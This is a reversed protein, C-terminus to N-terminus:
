AQPSDGSYKLARSTIAMPMAFPKGEMFNTLEREAAAGGEAVTEDNLLSRMKMHSYLVYAHKTPLSLDLVVVQVLGRLLDEVEDRNLKRTEGSYAELRGVGIGV